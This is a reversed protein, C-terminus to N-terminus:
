IIAFANSGRIFATQFPCPPERAESLQMSTVELSLGTGQRTQWKGRVHIQVNANYGRMQKPVAVASCARTKDLNIKCPILDDRICSSTASIRDEMALLQKKVEETAGSLCISKRTESGNRGYVPPEWPIKVDELLLNFPKGEVSCATLRVNSTKRSNESWAAMEENRALFYEHPSRM